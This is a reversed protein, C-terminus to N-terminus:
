GKPADNPFLVHAADAPKGAGGAGGTAPNDEKIMAGVKSMFRILSPHNGGGTANLYDKLGADGLTEVARRATSVTKDWHVGGIEPDAKAENAWGAVTNAWTENQKAARATQTAIFKDALAQAQKGTLKAAAFDPGLADLLEQDVTVGEPMTLAYKGDAPVVDLPDAAPPKTKDHEAKAAANEAESKAPDAEYEKWDGAGGDKAAAAAAADVAAKAADGEGAPADGPFLVSAPDPAAGAAAPPDGAGGGGGGEGAANYCILAGFLGGFLHFKSRLM